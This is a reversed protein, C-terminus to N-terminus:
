LLHKWSKGLVIDKISSPEVNYELALMNRTYIRPKFKARIERVNSETLKSNHNNAGIMWNVNTRKKGKTSKRLGCRIAHIQNESNTCWELNVARNDSKIGNIHNVQIKDLPNNVFHLAVIRHIKLTYLIGNKTLGVRLYGKKDKAPKIISERGSGYWNFTKINGLDSVEYNEFGKIKVFDEM